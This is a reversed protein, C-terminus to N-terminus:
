FRYGIKFGFGFVESGELETLETGGVTATADGLETYNVGGSVTLNEDIDYSAGVTVGWRGDSPALPSVLTDPGGDSWNFSVSGALKETFQRGVGINFDRVIDIGVLSAGGTAIGFAEPTVLVNQYRAYRFSAFALTDKAIGTQFSVNLAEPTEVDTTSEGDATIGLLAFTPTLTETTDFDHDIESFYTAAVRLAIEPIEYSAGVQWGFNYDGDLQVEYGNLLDGYGLGSLNVQASIQEFRIGGHIGFGNDFRYRAMGTFTNSNLLAKTGGLLISGEGTVPNFDPYIVDAGYPQDVILAFSLNPTVQQKFGVSGQFFNDAVDGTQSGAFPGAVAGDEGEIQPRVVGFNLEAYTGEEFIIDIDQGSRDLGQANVAATAAFSAVVALTFRNM